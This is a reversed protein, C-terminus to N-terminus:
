CGKIGGNIYDGCFSFINNDVFTKNEYIQECKGNVLALNNKCKTCVYDKNNKPDINCIECGSIYKNCQLCKENLLIYDPECFDCIFRRKRTFKTYNNDNMNNEEYHCHYCGENIKNCSECIEKKSEIYGNECEVECKLSDNKEWSFSCAGKCGPMGDECKYCKENDFTFFNNNRCIGEETANIYDSKDLKSFNLVLNLYNQVKIIEKDINQCIKREYFKSDYSLYGSVCKTCNYITNVYSTDIKAELCNEKGDKYNKIECYKINKENTILVFNSNACKTCIYNPNLETGINEKYCYDSDSNLLSLDICNNIKPDLIMNSFYCKTCKYNKIKEDYQIRLCNYLFNEIEEMKVCLHSRM